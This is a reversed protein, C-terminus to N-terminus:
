ALIILTVIGIALLSPIILNKTTEKQEEIITQVLLESKEAQVNDEAVGVVLPQLDIKVIAGDGGRLGVFPKNGIFFNISPNATIKTIGMLGTDISAQRINEGKRVLGQEYQVKETRQQFFGEPQILAHVGGTLDTIDNQLIFPVERTGEKFQVSTPGAYRVRMGNQMGFQFRLLLQFDRIWVLNGKANPFRSNIIPRYQVRIFPNIQTVKGPKLTFEGDPTKIVVDMLEEKAEIEGDLRPFFSNFNFLSRIRAQPRDESPIGSPSILNRIREEESIARQLLEDRYQVRINDRDYYERLSEQARSLELESLPIDYKIEIANKSEVLFTEVRKLAYKDELRDIFERISEPADPAKEIGEEKASAIQRKAIERLRETDLTAIEKEKIVQAGIEKSSERIREVEKLGEEESLQPTPLISRMAQVFRQIVGGFTRKSREFPSSGFGRVRQTAIADAESESLGTDTLEQKIMIYLNQQAEGSLQTAFLDFSPALSFTQSARGKGGLAIPSYQTQSPAAGTRLGITVGELQNKVRFYWPPSNLDPTLYGNPPILACGQEPECEIDGFPQFNYTFQYTNNGPLPEIEGLNGVSSFLQPTTQSTLIIVATIILAIIITKQLAM